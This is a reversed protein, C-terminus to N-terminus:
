FEEEEEVGNCIYNYVKKSMLIKQDESREMQNLEDIFARYILLSPVSNRKSNQELLIGLIKEGIKPFGTANIIEDIKTSLVNKEVSNSLMNNVGVRVYNEFDRLFETIVELTKNAIADINGNCHSIKFSDFLGFYPLGDILLGLTVGYLLRSNYSHQILVIPAFTISKKGDQLRCSLNGFSYKTFFQATNYVRYETSYEIENQNLVNHLSVALDRNSILAYDKSCFNVIVDNEIESESDPISMIVCHDNYPMFRFESNNNSIEFTPVKKVEAFFETPAIQTFM